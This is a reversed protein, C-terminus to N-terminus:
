GQVRRYGNGVGWGTGIGVGGDHVSIRKLQVRADEGKEVLRWGQIAGEGGEGARALMCAALDVVM